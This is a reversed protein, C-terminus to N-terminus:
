THLIKQLKSFNNACIALNKQHGFPNAPSPHYLPLIQFAFNTDSIQNMEGITLDQKLGISLVEKTTVGLSLVLKIQHEQIQRFLFSLSREACTKLIKRNQGIYCKAIETFACDELSLNFPLLEENLRKGTPVIKGATTYFARGSEVWGNRALSEGLILVKQGRGKGVQFFFDLAQEDIHHCHHIEPYINM